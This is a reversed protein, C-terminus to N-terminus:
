YKFSWATAILKVNDPDQPPLPHLFSCSLSKDLAGFTKMLLLRQLIIRGFYLHEQEGSKCLKDNQLLHLGGGRLCYGVTDM